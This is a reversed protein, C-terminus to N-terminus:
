RSRKRKRSTYLYWPFITASLSRLYSSQLINTTYRDMTPLFVIGALLYLANKLGDYASWQYNVYTDDQPLTVRDIIYLSSYWSYSDLLFGDYYQYFSLHISLPHISSYISLYIQKIATIVKWYSSWKSHQHQILHIAM